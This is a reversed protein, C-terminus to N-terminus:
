TQRGECLISAGGGERFLRHLRHLRHLRGAADRRPCRASVPVGGGAKREQLESSPVLVRYRRPTTKGFGGPPEVQEILGLRQAQRLRRGATDHSNIGPATMLGDYTVKASDPPFVDDAEGKLRERQVMDEIARVVAKITEPVNVSYLSGM